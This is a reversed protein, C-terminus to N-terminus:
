KKAKKWVWFGLGIVAIIPIAGIALDQGAGKIGEGVDELGKQIGQPIVRIAEIVADGAFYLAGTILAALATLAIATVIIAGLSSTGTKGLFTFEIEYREDAVARSLYPVGSWSWDLNVQPRIRMTRPDVDFGQRRFQERWWHPNKIRNKRQIVETDTEEIPVDPIKVMAVVRDGPNVMTGAVQIDTQV